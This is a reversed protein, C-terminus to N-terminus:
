RWWHEDTIPMECKWTELNTPLKGFELWMENLGDFHELALKDGKVLKYYGSRNWKDRLPYDGKTYFYFLGCLISIDEDLAKGANGADTFSQM